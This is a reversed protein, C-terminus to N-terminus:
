QKDGKLEVIGHQTVFAKALATALDVDEMGIADAIKSRLCSADSRSVNPGVYQRIFDCSYTYPYRSM